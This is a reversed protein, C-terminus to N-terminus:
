HKDYTNGYNNSINYNIESQLYKVIEKKFLQTHENVDDKESEILTILEKLINNPTSNVKALFDNYIEYALDVSHQQYSDM